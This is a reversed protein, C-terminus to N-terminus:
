MSRSLRMRGDISLAEALRMAQKPNVAVTVTGPRGGLEAISPQVAVTVALVEVDEAVRSSADDDELIIDVHDGPVLYKGETTVPDTKLLMARLNPPMPKPDPDLDSLIGVNRVTLTEGSPIAFLAVKGVVSRTDSYGPGGEDESTDVVTVMEESIVTGAPISQSAVVVRVAPGKSRDPDGGDGLIMLAVVVIAAVTLLDFTAVYVALRPFRFM